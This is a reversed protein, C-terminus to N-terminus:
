PHQHQWTHRKLYSSFLMQICLAQVAAGVYVSYATDLVLEPLMFLLGGLIGGRVCEYLYTARPQALETWGIIVALWTAGMGAMGFFLAEQYWLRAGEGWWGDAIVAPIVVAMGMFIRTSFYGSQPQQLSAPHPDALPMPEQNPLFREPMWQALTLTPSAPAPAPVCYAAPVESLCISHLPPLQLASGSFRLARREDPDTVGIAEYWQRLTPCDALTESFWAQRFLGVITPTYYCYLTDSVQQFQATDQQLADATFLTESGAPLTERLVHWTLMETLIIAAAFRDGYAHWQSATNSTTHQYGAQGAPRKSRPLIPIGPAFMEEVDILAIDYGPRIMVNGGAIDAHALHYAELEALVQALALATNYGEQYSFSDPTNTMMDFWTTGDIWPMLVAYELDPYQQILTGHTARTLVTRDVVAMGPLHAYRALAQASQAIAADRYLPLFTKLAHRTGGRQHTLQYVTGRGGQQRYAMKSLAPHPEVCYADAGIVLTQRPQPSFTTM